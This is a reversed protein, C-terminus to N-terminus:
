DFISFSQLDSVWVEDEYENYGQFFNNPVFEENWNQQNCLSEMILSEPFQDQKQQTVLLRRQKIIPENLHTSAQQEQVLECLQEPLFQPSLIDFSNSVILNEEVPSHILRPSRATEHVIKKEKQKRTEDKPKPTIRKLQKQTLSTPSERNRKRNSPNTKANRKKRNKDKKVFTPISAIKIPLKRRVRKKRPIKPVGFVFWDKSYPLINDFNFTRKFFLTLGREITRQTRGVLIALDSICEREIKVKQPIGVDNTQIRQKKFSRLWEKQFHRQKIGEFSNPRLKMMALLRLNFNKIKHFTKKLEEESRQETLELSLQLSSM